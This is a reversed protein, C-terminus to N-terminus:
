NKFWTKQSDRSISYPRSPYSIGARLDSFWWEDALLSSEFKELFGFITSRCGFISADLIWRSGPVLLIFTSFFGNVVSLRYYSLLQKRLSCGFTFVLLTTHTNPFLENQITIIYQYYCLHFRFQYM